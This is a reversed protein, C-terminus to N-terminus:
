SFLSFPAVGLLLRGINKGAELLTTRGRIIQPLSLPSQLTDREARISEKLQVNTLERIVNM